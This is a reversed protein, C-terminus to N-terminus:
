NKSPDKKPSPHDGGPTDSNPVFVKGLPQKKPYKDFFKKIFDDMAAIDVKPKKMPISGFPYYEGGAPREMRRVVIRADGREKFSTGEPRAFEVDLLVMDGSLIGQNLIRIALADNVYKDIVSRLPRAGYIVDVGKYVLFDELQPTSAVYIYGKGSGNNALVGFVEEQLMLRLIQRYHEYRLPQFVVINRRGGIRGLLPQYFNEKKPDEIERITSHYIEKDTREFSDSGHSSLDFGIKNKEFHESMVVATGINTTFVILSSSFDVIKGNNLSLYGEELANFLVEQLATSARDIEDFIVVCPSPRLFPKMGDDLEKRVKRLMINVEEYLITEKEPYDKEALRQIKAKHRHLWANVEELQDTLYKEAEQKSLNAYKGVKELPSPANYGVYGPPAGTLYSIEHGEKMKACEILVYPDIGDVTPGILVLAGQKPLYTKGVGSPGACLICQPRKGTLGAELNRFARVIKRVARSQGIVREQLLREKELFHPPLSTDNIVEPYDDANFSLSRSPLIIGGFKDKDDSGM